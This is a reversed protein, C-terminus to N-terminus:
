SGATTMLISVEAYHHLTDIWKVGEIGIPQGEVYGGTNSTSWASDAGLATPDKSSIVVTGGLCWGSRLSKLAGASMVLKWRWILASGFVYGHGRQSRDVVLQREKATTVNEWTAGALPIAGPAVGRSYVSTASAEAVGAETAFGLLWGLRDPWTVVASGSAKALVSQGTATSTLTWGAANIVANIATIYADWRYHGEAVTYTAGGLQVKRYGAFGTDVYGYLFATTASV